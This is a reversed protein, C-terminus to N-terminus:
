GCGVGQYWPLEQIDTVFRHHNNLMTLGPTLEESIALMARRLSNQCRVVTVPPKPWHSFWEEFLAELYAQTTVTYLMAEFAPGRHHLWHVQCPTYACPAYDDSFNMLNHNLAAPASSM